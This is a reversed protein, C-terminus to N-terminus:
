KSGRKLTVGDPGSRIWTVMEGSGERVLVGMGPDNSEFMWELLDDPAVAPLAPDVVVGDTESVVQMVGPTSIRVGGEVPECAEFPRDSLVSVGNETVAYTGRWQRATVAGARGTPLEPDRIGTLFDVGDLRQATRAARDSVMVQSTGLMGVPGEFAVGLGRERYLNKFVEGLADVTMTADDYVVTGRLDAADLGPPHWGHLYLIGPQERLWERLVKVVADDAATGAPVSIGIFRYGGLNAGVLKSLQFFCDFQNASLFGPANMGRGGVLLVDHAQLPFPVHVLLNVADQILKREMLFGLRFTERELAVRQSFEDTDENVEELDLGLDSEKEIFGESPKASKIEADLRYKAALGRFSHEIAEAFVPSTPTLDELQVWRGFDEGKWGVHVFLYISFLGPHGGALWTCISDATTIDTLKHLPSKPVATAHGISTRNLGLGVGAKGQNLWLVPRDPWLTKMRRISAYRTRSPTAYYYGAAIDFKWDRDYACPGNQDPMFTAVQMGPRLAGYRLKIYDYIVNFGEIAVRQEWDWWAAKEAPTLKERDGAVRHPDIGAERCFLRWGGDWAQWRRFYMSEEGLVVGDVVDWLDGFEADLGLWFGDRWGANFFVQVPNNATSNARLLFVKGAAHARRMPELEEEKPIHMGYFGDFPSHDVEATWGCNFSMAQTSSVPNVPKRVTAEGLAEQLYLRAAPDVQEALAARLQTQEVDVGDQAAAACAYLRVMRHPDVLLPPLCRRAQAPALAALRLIALARTQPDSNQTADVLNGIADPTGSAAWQEVHQRRLYPHEFSMDFRASAAPDAPCLPLLVLRAAEAIPAYPHNALQVVRERYLALQDPTMGALAAQVVPSATDSLKVLLIENSLKGDNADEQLVQEGSLQALTTAATERLERAVDAGAIRKLLPVAAASKMAGLCRIAGAQQAPTKPGTMLAMMNGPSQMSKGVAPLMDTTTIDDDFLAEVDDLGLKDIMAVLESKLAETGHQNVRCFDVAADERETGLVSVLAQQAILNWRHLAQVGRKDLTLWQAADLMAAAVFTDQPLRSQYPHLRELRAEGSNSKWEAWLSRGTYVDEILQPADIPLGQRLPAAAADLSLGDVLLANLKELLPLLSSSDQYDIEFEKVDDARYLRCQLVGDGNEVIFVADLPLIANVSAFVDGGGGVWAAGRANNLLAAAQPPDVLAVEASDALWDHLYQLAVLRGRNLPDRLEKEGIRAPAGTMLLRLPEARGAVTFALFVLTALTRRWALYRYSTM